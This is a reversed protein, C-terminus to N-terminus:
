NRRFGVQRWPLESRRHQIEAWQEYEEKEPDGIGPRDRGWPQAWDPGTVM